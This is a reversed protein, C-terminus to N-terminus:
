ATQRRIQYGTNSNRLGMYYIITRLRNVAVKMELDSLFIVQSKRTERNLLWYLRKLSHDFITSHKMVDMSAEDTALM